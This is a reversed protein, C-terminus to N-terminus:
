GHDGKWTDGAGTQTSPPKLRKPPVPMEGTGLLKVEFGRREPPDHKRQSRKICTDLWWFLGLFLFLGIPLFSMAWAGDPM